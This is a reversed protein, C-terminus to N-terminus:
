RTGLNATWYIGYTSASNTAKGFGIEKLAPNMFNNCHGASKFWADVVAQQTQQGAAINEAVNTWGTYGAASIRSSFSSGNSGTHNFFNKSAMDDSHGQAAKALLANVKLAPAPAKAVGGCTTGTTRVKNVLATMQDSLTAVAVPYTPKWQVPTKKYEYKVTPAPAADATGATGAFLAGALALGAISKKIRGNGM